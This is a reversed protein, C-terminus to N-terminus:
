TLPLRLVFTTHKAHPDLTLEGHHTEIIGKSISLGLGTGKGVPKTTFFPEMIRTQIKESVGPGSDIIRIEAWKGQTHGELRIWKQDSEQVADYANNLLNILVQSIMTPNGLIEMQSAVNSQFHVGGSTFRQQCLLLTEDTCAKLDIMLHPDDDAKRSFLRLGQIIAAAQMASQEIRKLRESVKAASTEPNSFDKRLLHTSIMIASLPNNIEHSIGAAMEGLSSFKANHIMKVQMKENIKMFRYIVFFTVVFTVVPVAAAYWTPAPQIYKEPLTLLETGFRNICYFAFPMTCTFALFLKEKSSFLFFPFLLFMLYLLELGASFDSILNFYYIDLNLVLLLFVRSVNFLGLFNLYLTSSLLSGGIFDSIAYFYHGQFLEVFAQTFSIGASATAVLNTLQIFRPELHPWNESEFHHLGIREMKKFPDQM